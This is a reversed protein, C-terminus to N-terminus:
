FGGTCNVVAYKGTSTKEDKVKGDIIIRCTISTGETQGGVGSIAVTSKNVITKTWPANSSSEQQLESNEDFYTVSSLTESDSIIEYVITKGAKGNDKPALPPISANPANEIESAASNISSNAEDIANSVEKGATGIIAVCGGFVLVIIGLLVWPWVKRKKPPRPPYQQGYPQQPQGPYPQGAQNPYPPPQNTM